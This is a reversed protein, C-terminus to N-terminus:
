RSRSSKRPVSKQVAKAVSRMPAKRALLAALDAEANDFEKIRTASYMEIALTVAPRLLIGDPTAEAIVHDNASIGLADRFKAPLTVVGRSSVTLTAKM